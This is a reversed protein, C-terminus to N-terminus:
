HDQFHASDDTLARFIIKNFLDKICTSHSEDVGGYIGHIMISKMNAELKVYLIGDFHLLFFGAM